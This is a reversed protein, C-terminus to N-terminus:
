PLPYSLHNSLDKVNHIPLLPLNPKLASCEQYTCTHLAMAEVSIALERM